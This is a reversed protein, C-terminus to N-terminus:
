NRMRWNSRPSAPIRAAIPNAENTAVAAHPLEGEPSPSPGGDPSMGSAVSFSPPPGAFTASAFVAGPSM